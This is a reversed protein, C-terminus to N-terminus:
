IESLKSQKPIHFIYGKNRYQKLLWKWCILELDLRRGTFNKHTSFDVGYIYVNKLEPNKKIALQVAMFPSSMSSYIFDNDINLEKRLGDNDYCGFHKVYEINNFYREWQVTAFEISYFKEPTSNKITNFRTKDGKTFCSETNVLLLNQVAHYKFVDNVGFTVDNPQPEYQNVTEGLGLVILRNM